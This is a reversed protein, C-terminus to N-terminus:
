RNFVGYIYGKVKSRLIKDPFEGKRLGGYIEKLISLGILKRTEEIYTINKNALLIRNRTMYFFYNNNKESSLHFAVANTFIKLSYGMKRARLCWDTEEFYLFFKEDLYGVRELVEMNIMFASGNVYDADYVQDQNDINNVEKKYHLHETFYAKSEKLIGGDSYIINPNSRFCIRPGTAALMTEKKIEKLLKVISKNNIRIDPNLLLSYKFNHKKAYKLGINNGGAYGLNKKNLILREKPIKLELSLVEDSTSFNDIVLISFNTNLSLYQYLEITDINSSYNLIIILLEKSM